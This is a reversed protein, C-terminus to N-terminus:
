SAASCSGSICTQSSDSDSDVCCQNDGSPGGTNCYEMGSKTSRCYTDNCVSGGNYCNGSGNVNFFGDEEPLCTGSNCQYCDTCDADFCCEYTGSLGGGSCYEMGSNTSQCYTDNCVSGSLYCTGGSPGPNPDGDAV